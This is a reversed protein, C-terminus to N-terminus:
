IYWLAETELLLLGRGEARPGRGRGKLRGPCRLGAAGVVIICVGVVVVAVRLVLFIRRRLWRGM